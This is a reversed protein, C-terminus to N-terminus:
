GDRQELLSILLREAAEVREQLQALRFGIFGMILVFGVGALLLWFVLVGMVAAGGERSLLCV